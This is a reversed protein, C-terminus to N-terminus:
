GPQTHTPALNLGGCYFFIATKFSTKNRFGRARRKISMIKSNLGEAVANTIFHRCYSIVNELREKIMRAVKKMPELRSHIVRKYWDEFYTRADEPNDHNWLDRLMEKYAWAKGTKLHIHFVEALKKGQKESLNEQSTLWVYKTKALSHDGEASLEKHEQRRTKDVAKTAHQMIHFRDHVIKGESLPLEEKIAQVYPEHMDIAVAEIGQRQESSLGQFYAALSEKSRDDAVYEVTGADIDCVVTVYNHGKRFAKEDAGLYRIIGPQKRLRGREVARELVRWTQDWSIRLIDSAATIVECALLVEIAHGEFLLSFRSGPEAWPVQVQKVGHEPCKVRPIRAHLWTRYQCTDLHRWQREAVHDHISLRRECCPCKWPVGEAHSLDVHVESTETDLRVEEVKWPVEIGLILRYLEVDQM